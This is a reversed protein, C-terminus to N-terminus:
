VSDRFWLYTNTFYLLLIMIYVANFGRIFSDDYFMLLTYVHQFALAGWLGVFIVLKFGDAKKLAIQALHVGFHTFGLIWYIEGYFALFVGYVFDQVFFIFTADLFLHENFRPPEPLKRIETLQLFLAVLQVGELPIRALCELAFLLDEKLPFFLFRWFRTFALFFLFVSCLLSVGMLGMCVLRLTRFKFFSYYFLVAQTVFSPLCIQWLLLDDERTTGFSISLCLVLLQVVCLTRM